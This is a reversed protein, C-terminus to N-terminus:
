VKRKFFLGIFSIVQVSLVAKLWNIIGLAADVNPIEGTKNGFYFLAYLAGFIIIGIVSLVRAAISWGNRAGPKKGVFVSALLTCVITFVCCTAHVMQGYHVINDIGIDREHTKLLNSLTNDGSNYFALMLVALIATLILNHKRVKKRRIQFQAQERSTKVSQEILFRDPTNASIQLVEEFLKDAEEWQKNELAKYGQDLLDTVSSSLGGGQSKEGANLPVYKEMNRVIDQVAGMKGLDQAQLRAFEKPMDYADIGKYCPILHKEKDKEMLKLFRSWENKVWVANFYEYDTGIALMVKASNLAAFIYPEYEQGLKDELTIRSFFVRYGKDTLATYLDQALVSDLTREGKPDTEKYCIFIDYPEEKSSVALIGRRIEEIQKAEERYVKRAEADANELTQEFDTDEMISDFSSRHCTPIKKGTAPDDVYEIGYKCLVLGWYAEAEQRYEAVISEYVGAAKDFECNKRLREAREFQILKKESDQNPVTQQTGCFECTAISSGEVLALDGGCMKCKIITSM